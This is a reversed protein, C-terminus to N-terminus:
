AECNITSHQKLLLHEVNKMRMYLSHIDKKLDKRVSELGRKSATEDFGRRKVMSALDEMTVKKAPM